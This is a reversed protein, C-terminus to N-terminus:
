IKTSGSTNNGVQGASNDGWCFATGDTKTFCTHRAGAAIQSISNSVGTGGAGVVQTPYLVNAGYTNNGIQGTSNYGWCFATGDTKVACNHKQGGSISEVNSLVGTAGVGLVPVPYMKYTTGNIGGEGEDNSGWCLVDGNNKLACTSYENAIIKEVDTLVGTGGEGIVQVPTTKNATTGIGLQGKRNDGWCFVTGNGKVSCTHAEGLSLTGTMERSGITVNGTAETGSISVSSTTGLGFDTDSTQNISGATPSLTMLGTESKVSSDKSFYRTWNTQNSTHTPFTGNDLGDSWDSQNWTYTAALTTKPNFFFSLVILLLFFGDLIKILTKKVFFHSM